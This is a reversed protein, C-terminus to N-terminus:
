RRKKVKQRAAGVLMQFTEPAGHLDEMAALERAAADFDGALIAEHALWYREALNELAAADAVARRRIEYRALLAAVGAREAGAEALVARKKAVYAPNVPSPEHLILDEVRERLCPDIVTAQVQRLKLRVVAPALHPTTRPLPGRASEIIEANGSDIEFSIGEGFTSRGGRIPLDRAEWSHGLEHFLYYALLESSVGPIAAIVIADSSRYAMAAVPTAQMGSSYVELPRGVIRVHVTDRRERTRLSLRALAYLADRGEEEVERIVAIEFWERRYRRWEMNHLAVAERLFSELEEGRAAVLDPDIEIELRIRREPFGDDALPAPPAYAPLRSVPFFVDVIWVAILTVAFAIFRVLWSRRIPHM